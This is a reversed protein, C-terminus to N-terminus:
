KKLVEFPLELREGQEDVLVLLHKGQTPNLGMQHFEHTTGLFVEDLHWYIKSQKNRHAVEFVCKGTSGDLEVPVYIQSSRKPYIMEMAAQASYAECDKRWPPLGIYNPDNNRYYWEM